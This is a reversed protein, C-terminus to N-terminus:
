ITKKSNLGEKKVATYMYIIFIGVAVFGAMLIWQVESLGFYKAQGARLFEIWFRNFSYILLFLLGVEGDFKKRKNYWHLFLFILLASFSLYLATPHMVTGSYNGYKVAFMGWPLTTPTGPVDGFYFCGMRYIFVFLATAIALIDFYGPALDEKVKNKKNYGHFFLMLSLFGGILMGVSALGPVSLNFIDGLTALGKWNQIYYWLRGGALSGFIAAFLFWFLDMPELELKEKAMEKIIWYIFFAFAIVIFLSEIEIPFIGKFLYRMPTYIFYNM